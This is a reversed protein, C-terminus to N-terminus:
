LLVTKRYINGSLLICEIQEKRSFPLMSISEKDEVFFAIGMYVFRASESFKCQVSKGFGCLGKLAFSFVPACFCNVYVMLLLYFDRAARTDDNALLCNYGTIFMDNNGESPNLISPSKINSFPEM